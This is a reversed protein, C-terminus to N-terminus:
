AAVIFYITRGATLGNLTVVTTMGVDLQSTYSGSRNGIFLTYGAVNAGSFTGPDWALSVSQGAHVLGAALLFLLVVVPWRARGGRVQAPIDKLFIDAM